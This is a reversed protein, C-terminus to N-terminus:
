SKEIFKQRYQDVFSAPAIIISTGSDSYESRILEAYDALGFEKRIQVHDPDKSDWNIYIYPIRPKAKIEILPQEAKIFGKLQEAHNPYLLSLWYWGASMPGPNKAALTAPLFLDESLTILPKKPELNRVNTLAEGLRSLEGIYDESNGNFRNTKAMQKSAWMGELTPISLPAEPTVRIALDVRRISDQGFLMGVLILGIVASALPKRSVTSSVAFIAAMTPVLMMSAGWYIQWSASVPFYQHWMGIALLSVILLSRNSSSLKRTVLLRLLTAIFTVVTFVPLLSWIFGGGIGQIRNSRPSWPFLHDVVDGLFSKELNKMEAAFSTAGVISQIWWDNIAGALLLHTLFIMTLFLFGIVYGFAGYIITKLAYSRDLLLIPFILFAVPLLLGVPQRAWFAASIALGAALCLWYTKLPKKSPDLASFLLTGAVLVFFLAYISSWPLLPSGFYPSLSLWVLVTAAAVSNNVSRKAFLFLLFAIGVLFIAAELRIVLLYKGFVKLALAHIYATLVGYQFFIDSYITLGAAVDAAPKFMIGDHHWDPDFFAFYLPCFIALLATVLLFGTEARRKRLSLGSNM